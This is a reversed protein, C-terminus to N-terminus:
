GSFRYVLSEREAELNLERGVGAGCCRFHADSHATHPGSGSILGNASGHSKDKTRKVEKDRREDLKKNRPGENTTWGDM